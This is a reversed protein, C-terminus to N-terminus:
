VNKRMKDLTTAMYQTGKSWWTLKDRISCWENYYIDLIGGTTFCRYRILCDDCDKSTCYYVQAQSIGTNTPLNVRIFKM